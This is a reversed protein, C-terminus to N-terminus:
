GYHVGHAAGQSKRGNYNDVSFSRSSGISLRSCCYERYFILSIPPTLFPLETPYGMTRAYLGQTALSSLVLQDVPARAFCPLRVM